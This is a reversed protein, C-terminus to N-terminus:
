HETNPASPGAVHVVQSITIACFVGSCICNNIKVFHTGMHTCTHGQMYTHALVWINTHTLSPSVFFTIHHTTSGGVQECGSELFTGNGYECVASVYIVQFLSSSALIVFVVLFM